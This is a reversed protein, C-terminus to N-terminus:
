TSRALSTRPRLLLELPPNHLFSHAGGGALLWFWLWSRVVHEASDGEGERRPSRGGGGLYHEETRPYKILRSEDCVERWEM